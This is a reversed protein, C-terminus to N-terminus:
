SATLLWGATHQGSSNRSHKHSADSAQGGQNPGNHTPFSPNSAPDVDDLPTVDLDENSLGLSLDSASMGLGCATLILGQFRSLYDEVDLLDLLGLDYQRRKAASSLVEHAAVIEQFKRKASDCGQHRDPHWIQLALRPLSFQASSSPTRMTHEQNLSVRALRLYSNRIEAPSAQFALSCRRFFSLRRHNM